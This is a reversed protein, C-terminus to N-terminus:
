PFVARFMKYLLRVYIGSDGSNNNTENLQLELHGHGVVFFTGANSEPIQIILTENTYFLKGEADVPDLELMIWRSYIHNGLNVGKLVTGEEYPAVIEGDTVWLEEIAEWNYETLNDTFELFDLAVPNCFGIKTVDCLAIRFLVQNPSYYRNGEVTYSSNINYDDDFYAPAYKEISEFDISIELNVTYNWQTYLTQVSNLLDLDDVTIKMSTRPYCLPMMQFVRGSVETNGSYNYQLPYTWCIPEIGNDVDYGEITYPVAGFVPSSGVPLFAVCIMQVMLFLRPKMSCFTM